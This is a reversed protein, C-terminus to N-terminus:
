SIIQMNTNPEYTFTESTVHNHTNFSIANNKMIYKINDIDNKINEKTNKLEIKLSQIENRLEINSLVLEHFRNIINRKNNSRYKIM